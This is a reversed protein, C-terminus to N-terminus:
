REGQPTPHVPRPAQAVYVTSNESVPADPDGRWGGSVWITRPHNRATGRPRRYFGPVYYQVGIPGHTGRLYEREPGRDYRDGLSVRNVQPARHQRRARKTTAKNPQEEGTLLPREGCSDLGPLKGSLLGWIANLMSQVSPSDTYVLDYGAAEITDLDTDTVEIRPNGVVDHEPLQHAGGLRWPGLDNWFMSGRAGGVGGGEKARREMFETLGDEGRGQGTHSWWTCFYRNEPEGTDLNHVPRLVWSLADIRQHFGIAHPLELPAGFWVFGVPEPPPLRPAIPEAHDMHWALTSSLTPDLLYTRSEHVGRVIGTTIESLLGTANEREEDTCTEIYSATIEPVSVGIYCSILKVFRYGFQDIKMRDILDAHARAATTVTSM